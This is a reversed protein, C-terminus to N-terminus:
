IATAFIIFIESMFSKKGSNKDSAGESGTLHPM